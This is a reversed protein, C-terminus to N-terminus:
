YTRETSVLFQVRSINAQADLPVALDVHIVSGFSSRANGLRLGAGFDKLVGLEPTPIPSAGWTRGADFFVAGGVHVLRWPFWPTYVREELSMLGFGSGSQYRLPYGRLGTDGGLQLFHDIDLDHGDAAALKIVFKTLESTTLYYTANGTALADQLAGAALRGAVSGAVFLNQGEGFHWGHTVTGDILVARRDAGLAPSAYGIGVDALLGYHLDETFAIQNLNHTTAYDNEVWQLRTYPYALNRDAPLPALLAHDPAITFLADDRRWGLLARVTWREDILLAKGLFLNARRQDLGYADYSLGLSYRTVVGRNDGVSAGLAYPTELSYFPRAATLSWVKGDSDNAYGFGDQWRSGWVNPDFWSAFSSSRDVSTSHGIEGAKGFGLLNADSLNFNTSNTGGSRGFNFAPSLTWVDHTVIEIDVLGDHYRTLRIEPEREFAASTRLNRATEDLLARSYPQGSHFLLRARIAAERTREHLHNAARYLWHDERPDNTEFIQRTNIDITGIRAGAAELEADPPIPADQAWAAAAAACLLGTLLLPHLGRM